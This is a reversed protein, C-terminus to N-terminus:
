VFGERPFRSPHVRGLAAQPFTHCNMFEVNGLADQSTLGRKHVIMRFGSRVVPIHGVAGQLVM